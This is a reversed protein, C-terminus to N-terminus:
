LPLPLPKRIRSKDAARRHQSITAMVDRASTCCLLRDLYPIQAALKCLDFSWYVTMLPNIFLKSHATRSTSHHDGFQGQMADTISACVISPQMQAAVAQYAELYLRGEVSHQSVSFCGLYGGTRELAAVNELFLGHSVGHFADVGFGLAMLLKCPVAQLLSVAAISTQDEVPTGMSEEWGFMLSDTGGDVLVVADVGQEMCIREYARHLQTVGVERKFAFVALDEGFTEMFWRSLHLEPFYVSRRAGQVPPLDHTVRFCAECFPAQGGMLSDLDTFSLNALLVEKGERRLAFFLPLGSLVDYGGGCGAVLVRRAPSLLEFVRPRSISWTSSKLHELLDSVAERSQGVRTQPSSEAM